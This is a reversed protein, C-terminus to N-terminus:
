QEARNRLVRRGIWIGVFQGISGPFLKDFPCAKAAMVRVRNNDLPSRGIVPRLFDILHDRPASHECVVFVILDDFVERGVVTGVAFFALM